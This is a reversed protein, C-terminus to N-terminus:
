RPLPWNRERKRKGISSGTKVTKRQAEDIQAHMAKVQRRAAQWAGLYAIGGAVVALAGDISAGWETHAERLLCILDM